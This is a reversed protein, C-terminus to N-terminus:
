FLTNIITNICIKFLKSITFNNCQYILIKITRMNFTKNNIKNMTPRDDTKAVGTNENIDDNHLIQNIHIHKDNYM